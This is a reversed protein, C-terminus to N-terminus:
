SVVEFQPMWVDEFQMFHVVVRQNIAVSEPACGVINSVLRLGVQEDLEIIAIVYPVELDDAWPQYNITFSVIHGHGSVARPSVQASNCRPCIAAPPHFYQECDACHHILLTQQEGGQWFPQNDSNLAPLKRSM